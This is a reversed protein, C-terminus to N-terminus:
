DRMFILARVVTPLSPFLWGYYASLWLADRGTKREPTQFMHAKMVNSINYLVDLIEESGSWTLSCSWAGGSLESLSTSGVQVWISASRSHIM